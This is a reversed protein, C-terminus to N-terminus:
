VSRTKGRRGKETCRVVPRGPPLSRGDRSYYFTGRGGAAARHFRGARQGGFGL